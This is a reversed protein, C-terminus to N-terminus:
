RVAPVFRIRVSLKHGLLPTSAQAQAGAISLGGVSAGRGGPPAPNPLDFSIVEGTTGWDIVSGGSGGAMRVANDSTDVIARRLGAWLGLSGDERRVTRVAGDVDVHFTGDPSPIPRTRFVFRTEAPDFPLSVAYTTEVGAPSQHVLWVDMTTTMPPPMMALDPPRLIVNRFVSLELGRLRGHCELGPESIELHDLPVRDGPRLEVETTATAGNTITRGGAWVRLWEVDVLAARGAGHSRVRTIVRWGDRVNSPPTTSISAECSGNQSVVYFRGGTDTVAVGPGRRSGDTGLLPATLTVTPQLRQAIDNLGARMRDVPAQGAAASQVAMVVTMLHWVM